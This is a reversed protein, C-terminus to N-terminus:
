KGLEANMWARTARRDLYVGALAVAVCAALCAPLGYYDNLAFCCAAVGAVLYLVMILQLMRWLANQVLALRLAAAHVAPSVAVTIALAATVKAPTLYSPLFLAALGAVLLLSGVASYALDRWATQSLGSIYDRRTLPWLLEQQMRPRRQALLMCSQVLGILWGMAPTLLIVGNRRSGAYDLVALQVSIIMAVMVTIFVARVAPPVPTSGYPLLRLRAVVPLGGGPQAGTPLRNLWGDIMRSNVGGAALQRAMARRAESKEFRSGSSQDSAMLAYDRDGERAATLRRLWLAVGFAGAVLIVTFLAQDDGGRDLWFDRTPGYIMSVVLGTNAMGLAFSMSQVTWLMSAAAALGYALLGVPSARLALASVLPTLVACGLLLGALLGVHPAAYGPTLRARPHVFLWKGHQAAVMAGFMAPMIVLFIAMESPAGQSTNNTAAIVMAVGVPVCLVAIGLMLFRHTLLTMAAQTFRATMSTTHM